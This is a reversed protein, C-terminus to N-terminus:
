ATAEQLEALVRELSAQKEPSNDIHDKREEIYNIKEAVNDYFRGNLFSRLLASEFDVKWNKVFISKGKVIVVVMSIM